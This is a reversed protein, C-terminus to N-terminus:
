DRHSYTGDWAFNPGGVPSVAVTARLSTFKGTGGSLICTGINTTVNVTCHGAATDNDLGPPDIVIDTDLNTGVPASAYTITSGVLIGPVNSSIVTCIDGARGQYTSCEKRLNFPGSRPTIATSACGGAVLLALVPLAMRHTM